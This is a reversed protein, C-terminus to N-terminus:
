KGSICARIKDVLTEPDYPKQLFVRGELFRGDEDVFDPSYGSTYIVSLGAKDSQLRKALEWGSVGDPMVIDTLLVQVDERHQPWIRLAEAGSKAEIVKYGRRRLVEIVLLRLPEEDEVV